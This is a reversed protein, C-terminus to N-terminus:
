RPHATSLNHWVYTSAARMRQARRAAGSLDPRRRVKQIIYPPLTCAAWPMGWGGPLAELAAGGRRSDIGRLVADRAMQGHFVYVCRGNAIRQIMAHNKRLWQQTEHLNDRRYDRYSTYCAVHVYYGRHNQDFRYIMADWPNFRQPPRRWRVYREPSALYM